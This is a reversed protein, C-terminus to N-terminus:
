STNDQYAEWSFETWNQLRQQCSLLILQKKNSKGM